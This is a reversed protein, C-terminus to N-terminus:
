WSQTANARLLPKKVAPSMLYVALVAYVVLFTIGLSLNRTDIRDEVPKIQIDADDPNDSQIQAVVQDSDGVYALVLPMAILAMLDIIVGLTLAVMLLKASKLRIFQVVAFLGFGSVVALCLWGYNRLSDGGGVSNILSVILMLLAGVGLLVGIVAIHLPPGSPPPPPPPALDDELGVRLGTEQDVGCTVCISMGQPVRGGCHSCRRAQSRADGAPSHRRQSPRDQFLAAADSVAAGGGAGHREADRASVLPLDFTERLDKDSALIPLDDQGGEFKPLDLGTLTPDADLPGGLTSESNADAVTVAFKLGCKPCRLKKGPAVKPPLNLITKCSQCLTTRPM